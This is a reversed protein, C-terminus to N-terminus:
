NISKLEQMSPKVSLMYLYEHEEKNKSNGYFELNVPSSIKGNSLFCLWVTECEPPTFCIGYINQNYETEGPSDAPFEDEFVHYGWKYIEAIDKVEEIMAQLSAKANFSGSYHISLGM